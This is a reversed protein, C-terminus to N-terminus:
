STEWVARLRYTSKRYYRANLELNIRVIVFQSVYVASSRAACHCNLFFRFLFEHKFYLDYGVLEPEFLRCAGGPTDVCVVLYPVYYEAVILIRGMEANPLTRRQMVEAAVKIRPIGISQRAEAPDRLLFLLDVSFQETLMGGDKEPQLRGHTM